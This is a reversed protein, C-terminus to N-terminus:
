DALVEWALANAIADAVYADTALGTAVAAEGAERAPQAALTAAVTYTVDGNEATAETVAVFDNADGDVVAVKDLEAITQEIEALKSDHGDLRANLDNLAASTTKTGAYLDDLATKVNTAAGNSYDEGEFVASYEIDEADVSAKLGDTVDLAVNGQDAALKVDLVQKTTAVGDVEETTETIALATGLKIDGRKDGLSTVADGADVQGIEQWARDTNLVYEEGNYVVVDGVEYNALADGAPLADVVGKFEMVSGLKTVAADIATRVAKETPLHADDATEAARVETTSDLQSATGLNGIQDAVYAVVFDKITTYLESESGDKKTFKLNDKDVVAELAEVQGKLTRFTAMDVMHAQAGGAYIYFGKDDGEIIEAFVLNGGEAKAQATSLNKGKYTILNGFLQKAM